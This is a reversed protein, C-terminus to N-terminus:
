DTETAAAGGDELEAKIDQMIESVMDKAKNRGIPRLMRGMMSDLLDTSASMAMGM